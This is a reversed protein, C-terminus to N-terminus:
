KIRPHAQLIKRSVIEFLSLESQVHYIDTDGPAPALQAKSAMFATTKADLAAPEDGSYFGDGPIPAEQLHQSNKPQTSASFHPTPQILDSNMAAISMAQTLRKGAKGSIKFGMDSMASLVAPTPGETNVQNEFSPADFKSAPTELKKDLGSESLIQGDLTQNAGPPPASITNQGAGALGANLPLTSPFPTPQNTAVCIALSQSQLDKVQGCIKKMAKKNEMTRYARAAALAGFVVAANCVTDVETELLPAAVVGAGALTNLSHNSSNLISSEKIKLAAYIEASGAVFWAAGCPKKWAEKSSNADTFKAVEKNKAEIKQYIDLNPNANIKAVNEKVESDAEVEKGIKNCAVGCTGAAAIDLPLLYKAAEDAKKLEQYAKCYEETQTAVALAGAGQTPNGATRLLQLGKLKGSCYTDCNNSAAFQLLEASCEQARSKELCVTQAIM